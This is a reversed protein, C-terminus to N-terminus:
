YNENNTHKDHYVSYISTHVTSNLAASVPPKMMFLDHIHHAFDILHLNFPSFFVNLFASSCGDRM